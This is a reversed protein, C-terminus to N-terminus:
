VNSRKNRQENEIVTKVTKLGNLSSIRELQCGSSLRLIATEIFKHTDTITTYSNVQIKDPILEKRQEFWDKIESIKM